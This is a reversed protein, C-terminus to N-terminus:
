SSFGDPPCYGRCETMIQTINLSEYSPMWTVCSGYHGCSHNNKYITLDIRGTGTYTKEYYDKELKFRRVATIHFDFISLGSITTNVDEPKL